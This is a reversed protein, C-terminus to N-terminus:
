SNETKNEFKEKLELFTKYDNKVKEEARKKEAEEKIKQEELKRKELEEIYKKEWNEDWMYSIPFSIYENYSGRCYGSTEISCCDDYFEVKDVTPAMREKPNLEVIRRAISNAKDELIEKSTLFNKYDQESTIINDM